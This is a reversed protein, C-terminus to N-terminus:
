RASAARPDAAIAARIEELQERQQWLPEAYVRPRGSDHHPTVDNRTEAESRLIRQRDENTM